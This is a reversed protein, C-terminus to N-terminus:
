PFVIALRATALADRDIDNLLGEITVGLSVGSNHFRATTLGLGLAGSPGATRFASNSSAAFYAPEAWAPTFSQEQLRVGWRGEVYPRLAGHRLVHFRAGISGSMAQQGIRGLSGRWAAGDFSYSRSNRGVENWDFRVLASTRHTHEFELGLGFGYGNEFDAWELPQTYGADLFLRVNDAFAVAPLALLAASLAALVAGGHPRSSETLAM